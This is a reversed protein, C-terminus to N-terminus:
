CPDSGPAGPKGSKARPAQATARPATAREASWRRWVMRAIQYPDLLDYHPFLSRGLKKLEEPTAEAGLGVLKAAFATVWDDLRHQRTELCEHSPEPALSPVLAPALTSATQLPNMDFNGDTRNGIGLAVAM